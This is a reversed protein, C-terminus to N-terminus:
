IRKLLKDLYFEDLLPPLHEDQGQARRVRRMVLDLKRMRTHAAGTEPSSQALAKEPLINEQGEPREIFGSNKLITYAMRLEPPLHSLDELVLPKGAGPLNDFDGRDLAERIKQEAIFATVHDSLM